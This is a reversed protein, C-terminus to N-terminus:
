EINFASLTRLEGIDPHTSGFSCALDLTGSGAIREAVWTASLNVVRGSSEVQQALTVLAGTPKGEALGLNHGVVLDLNSLTVGAPLDIRVQIAIKRGSPLTTHANPSLTKGDVSVTFVVAPGAPAPRAIDHKPHSGRQVLFGAIVVVIALGAAVVAWHARPRSRTQWSRPQISDLQAVRILEAKVDLEPGVESDAPDAARLQLMAADVYKSRM